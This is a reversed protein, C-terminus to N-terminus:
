LTGNRKSEFKNRHADMHSGVHFGITCKVASYADMTTKCFGICSSENVQAFTFFWVLRQVLRFRFISSCPNLLPSYREMKKSEFKNRQANMHSGMHFGVPCKVALYADVIIKCFGICFSENM